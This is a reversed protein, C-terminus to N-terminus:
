GAWQLLFLTLVFVIFFLLCTYSGLLMFIFKKNKSKAKFWDSMQNMFSKSEKTSANTIEKGQVIKDLKNKLEVLTYCDGGVRDNLENIFNVIDKRINPWVSCLWEKEHKCLARLANFKIRSELVAPTEQELFHRSIDTSIEPVIENCGSAIAMISMNFARNSLSKYFLSSGYGYKFEEIANGESESFIRKSVKKCQQYHKLLRLRVSSGPYQTWGVKTTKAIIFFGGGRLMRHWMDFDEGHNITEDFGGTELFKSKKVIVCSPNFLSEPTFSFYLKDNPLSYNFLIPLGMSEGNPFIMEAPCFVGLLASNNEAVLAKVRDTLSNDYFLDDADLFSIFEGRALDVGKNRAASVGKNEQRFSRFRYDKKEYFRIIESTRDTSGDDVMIVEYHSYNQKILSNITKELTNSANFCPIVISVLPEKM